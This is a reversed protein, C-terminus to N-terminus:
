PLRVMRARDGHGDAELSLFYLGPPVARGRDDRGDWSPSSAGAPREDGDLLRRVRAGRVDYVDLTVRAARPLTFAIRSVVAAGAPNPTVRLLRPAGEVVGPSADVATGALWFDHDGSTHSEPTLWKTRPFFPSRSRLRARAHFGAGPYPHDILPLSENTSGPNGTDFTSNAGLHTPVGTFPENMPRIEFDNGVRSRGAASHLTLLFSVHSPSALRAPAFRITAPLDPELVQFKRVAGLGHGMFVYVRGAASPAGVVLDAFGDRTIDRLLAFASGFQANVIDPEWTWPQSEPVFPGGHFLLLRGAASEGNTWGPEGIVFDGFGDGDVDGGGSIAAGLRGDVITGTRNWIPIQSQSRGLSGAFVDVRGPSDAQGQQGPSGVGLDCVGDGTVDGLAAVTGGFTLRPALPLLILGPSNSTGGPGGYFVEVKGSVAVSPPGPNSGVVVDSYGDADLDAFAVSAGLGAGAQAGERTWAPSAAPGTPGGLVVWAAGRNTLGSSDWERAGILLDHYGDGNVDGRGALASGVRDFEHAGAFVLAPGPPTGAGGAFWDVRGAQLIAANDGMPASGAFDSFGDRNVDGADVLRTGFNLSNSGGSYASEFATSVGSAPSTPHIWVQGFGGGGLPDGIVVWANSSPTRAQIIALANGYRTGVQPGSVPWGFLQVPNVRPIGYQFARGADTGAPPADMDETGILIEAFGDGNADGATAITSGFFGNAVPSFIDGIWQVQTRGGRYVGVRGHGAGAVDSAGVLFDALGDGDLDGATAVRGGFFEFQAIQGNHVDFSFAVGGPGGYALDVRGTNTNVNPSGLLVDGYGDGNVDGALSVSSGMRAGPLGAIVTDAAFPVGSASGLFLYAAGAATFQGPAGVLVDAFTDANVDGAGSVSRGFEGNQVGGFWSRAPAAALGAPGGHFVYAAGRNTMGIVSNFPTAIVVDDYGDGNVDGAPAIAQGFQQNTEILPSFLEYNPALPLGNPGGHFVAVKGANLQQPTDWSPVGVMVDAYGDRNVDGASAVPGGGFANLQGPRWLWSHTTLSGNPHGRYLYAGGENTFAGDESGAGVIVDGYGDGDVDGAPAVFEGYNGGMQTGVPAWPLAPFEVFMGAWVPAPLLCLVFAALAAPLRAPM